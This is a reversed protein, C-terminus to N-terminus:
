FRRSVTAKLSRGVYPYVYPNSCGYAVNYGKKDALNTGSLAVTWVHDSWAYRADLLMSSPVRNSCTNDEDNGLRMQALYQAGVDLTQQDDIRYGMRATATHPAVLVIDKGANAGSTYRATLQQWTVNATWKSSLVLKGELEMGRRKAPDINENWGYFPTVSYDSHWGIENVTRQVFHRVTLFNGGQAWKVGVERDSNRQPLLPMNNQTVRNEDVNPLRYSSAMRGYVDLGPVLTQNIGFEGAHLKDHRDYDVSASSVAGQKRVHEERWGASLRTQSKLAWESQIFGARNEQNGSELGYYGNADFDWGQWDAGLVTKVDAFPLHADHVLRPTIQSQTSSAGSMSGSYLFSADRTRQGMDLQATWNAFRYATNFLLRTEDTAAFDQPTPATRPNSRYQDLMLGGPLNADQHERILRVGADLDQDHWQVGGGLVDQKYASHDRAGDNRVRKASFDVAAKGLGWQGAASWDQTGFSGVSASVNAARVDGANKKLIINIAGASAGEGWLVSSGGRVIEIRDVMDLPLSTLRAQANENESVRIGDVLVVLNQSSADGFGRLDLANERGNNLDAKAAVGGLKRIAENVDAVGSRAIQEATIITAGIPATQLLQPMRSATVVVPEVGDQAQAMGAGSLALGCAVALASRVGPAVRVSNLFLM